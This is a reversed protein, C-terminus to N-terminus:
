EVPRPAPGTYDIDACHQPLFAGQPRDIFDRYCGLAGGAVCLAKIRYGQQPSFGQDLLFASAYGGSNVSLGYHQHLYDSLELALKLYDGQPIKLRAQEAMYPQLREDDKDVPRAFGVIIPKGKKHPVASLVEALSRGQQREKLASQLFTMCSESTQSGGYARSDASLCAATSAAVVSAGTDAALAAIQNCWIRSDPYSVGMFNVEIWDAVNRKVLKGTANLITLQMLSIEGILEKFLSRGQVSVDIGGRWKGVTSNIQGRQNEWWGFRKM